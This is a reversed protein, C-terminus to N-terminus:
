FHRPFTSLNIVTLHFQDMDLGNKKRTQIYYIPLAEVNTNDNSYETVGGLSM